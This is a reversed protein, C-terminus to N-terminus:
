DCTGIRTINAVFTMSRYKAAELTNEPQLAAGIKDQEPPFTLGSWEGQTHAGLIESIPSSVSRM